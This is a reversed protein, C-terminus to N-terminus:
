FSVLNSGIEQSGFISFESKRLRFQPRADDPMKSNNLIGLFKLVKIELGSNDNKLFFVFINYTPHIGQNKSNVWFIIKMIKKFHGNQDDDTAFM